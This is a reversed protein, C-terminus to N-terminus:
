ADFISDCILFVLFSVIKPTPHVFFRYCLTAPTTGVVVFTTPTFRLQWRTRRERLPAVCRRAQICGIVPRSGEQWAHSPKKTGSGILILDSATADEYNRCLKQTPHLSFYIHQHHSIFRNFYLSQNMAPIKTASPTYRRTIALMPMRGIHTLIPAIIPRVMNKGHIINTTMTTM